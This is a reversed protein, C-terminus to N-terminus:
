VKDLGNPTEALHVARIRTNGTLRVEFTDSRYGAPLRFLANDAVQTTFLLEKDVFLQFQVGGTYSLPTQILDSAVAVTGFSAEAIAGGTARANIMALNNSLIVANM